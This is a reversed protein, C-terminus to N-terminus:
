KGIMAPTEYILIQAIIRDGTKKGWVAMTSSPGIDDLSGPEVVQQIAQGAPPQGTYQRMTVDEYIITQSTVVVEVIPGDYNSSTEVNGSQDTQISVEIQGTGVFFSNNQRHDFVGRVDASALPLEKAPQIDDVNIRVERPGSGLFLNPGGWPLPQGNLLRGGVYAAGGLLLISAVIGSIILIRKKM